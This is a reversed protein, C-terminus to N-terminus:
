SATLTQLAQLRGSMIADSMCLPRASVCSRAHWPLSSLKRAVFVGILERLVCSTDTCCPQVEENDPAVLAEGEVMCWAWSALM